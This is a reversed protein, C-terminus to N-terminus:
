DFCKPFFIHKIVHVIGEGFDGIYQDKGKAEKSCNRLAIQPAIATEWSATRMKGWIFM